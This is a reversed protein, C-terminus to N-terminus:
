GGQGPPLPLSTLRSPWGARSTGEEGTEVDLTLLPPAPPARVDDARAAGPLSTAASPYDSRGSTSLASRHTPRTRRRDKRAEARRERGDPGTGRRFLLVSLPTQPHPPPPAQLPHPEPPAGPPPAPPIPSNSISHGPRPLSGLPILPRRLRPKHLPRPGSHLAATPLFKPNPRIRSHRRSNLTSVFHAPSHTTAAM